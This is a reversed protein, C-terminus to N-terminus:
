IPKMRNLRHLAMGLGILIGVITTTPHAMIIMEVLRAVSVVALALGILIASLLTHQELVWTMMQHPVDVWQSVGEATYTEGGIELSVALRHVSNFTHAVWQYSLPTEIKGIKLYESGQYAIYNSAVIGNVVLTGSVTFPAFVGNRVVPKISTVVALQNESATLLRDGKKVLSAPIYNGGEIGVMHDPSIELPPRSGETAIQLFIASSKVSKHGFSYIPEYKDTSVQVADGLVLDEMKIAGKGQVEVLSSGSFCFAFGAPPPPPFVPFGENPSFNGCDFELCTCCSGDCQALDGGLSEFNDIHNSCLGPPMPGTLQNGELYLLCPLETSCDMRAGLNSPVTGTLQNGNLWAKNLRAAGTTLSLLGGWIGCGLLSFSNLSAPLAPLTGELRTNDLWATDLSNMGEIFSLTMNYQDKPETTPDLFRMNTMQLFTLSPLAVFEPPVTSAEDGAWDYINDGINVSKLNELTAFAEGRIPGESWYTYHVDFHELKTLKNLATPIGDAEWSTSGAYLQKLGSMSDFWNYPEIAALNENYDVALLALYGGLLGTEAPWTGSLENFTLCIGLVRDDTDALDTIFLSETDSIDLCEVADENHCTIGHWTCYDSEVLWNSTDVWPSTVQNTAYYICALVYFNLVHKEEMGAYLQKLGSMSDFWDYPEMAEVSDNLDIALLALYGGLLGTEAPWTGTLRNFTLCIGLVRDDTDLLDTIFLTDADSIDECEVVAENHCTIGYWNCYDSDVLWNSKFRWLGGNTAYYICALVYFNLINKPEIRANGALASATSAAARAQYSNVNSFVSDDGLYLESIQFAKIQGLISQETYGESTPESLCGLIGVCTCCSDNCQAADGGLAEFEKNCLGSPISGTLQNGQLYLVCPVETSCNMRAVLNSPVTGTLGCENLSLIQLGSPLNTPLGGAFPTDEFYAATLSTMDGMFSLTPYYQEKPETMPDQFIVNNMRLTTLSNLGVFDSPLTSEDNGGWDYSNDGIDVYKLNELTEFAEGRIPGESWYTYQCDFYELKTLKNLATPIGDAEWSTSGAYLQKLGSMSDFWNYPEIAALNENYDVALLALYGGLLGTEAPWTGSLENFTLCIGLVRDDTDALDTIFLSETDSIDLCEVADENHCTIGHWTCYDSEVLWNSTDVWPSTVQNTAYYICALVYFNLVHKEEMGAVNELTSATSAAAQAQYSRPQDLISADALYSESDQLDEILDLIENENLATVMMCACSLLLPALLAFSKM